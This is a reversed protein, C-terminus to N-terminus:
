LHRSPRCKRLCSWFEGLEPTLKEILVVAIGVECGDSSVTRGPDVGDNRDQDVAPQDDRDCRARGFRRIQATFRAVHEMGGDPLLVGLESDSAVGRLDDIAVKTSLANLALVEVLHRDSVILDDKLQADVPDVDCGPRLPFGDPVTPGRGALPHEPVNCHTGNSQHKRGWRKALRRNLTNM